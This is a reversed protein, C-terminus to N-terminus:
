QHLVEDSQSKWNKKFQSVALKSSRSYKEISEEVSQQNRKRKRSADATAKAQQLQILIQQLSKEETEDDDEDDSFSLNFDPLTPLM